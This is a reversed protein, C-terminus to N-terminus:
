LCDHARPHEVEVELDRAQGVAAEQAFCEKLVEEMAESSAQFMVEVVEAESSCHEVRVEEMVVSLMEGPVAQERQRLVPEAM